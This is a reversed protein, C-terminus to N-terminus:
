CQRELPIAIYHTHFLWYPDNGAYLSCPALHKLLFEPIEVMHEPKHYGCAAIVPRDRAIVSKAGELADLDSGEIDIKIYDIHIDAFLRDLTEIVVSESGSGDLTARSQTHPHLKIKGAGGSAGLAVHFVKVGSAYLRISRIHSHLPDIAYITRGPWEALTDGYWAGCDVVTGSEQAIGGPARYGYHNICKPNRKMKEMDYGNAYFRRVEELHSKSEDDALVEAIADLRSQLPLWNEKDRHRTWIPDNDPFHM